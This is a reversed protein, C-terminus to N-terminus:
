ACVQLNYIFGIRINEFNSVLDGCLATKMLCSKTIHLLFINWTINKAWMRIFLHGLIQRFGSRNDYICIACVILLSAGIM